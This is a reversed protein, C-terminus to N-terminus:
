PDRSNRLLHGSALRRPWLGCRRFFRRGFPREQGPEVSREGVPCQWFGQVQSHPAVFRGWFWLGLRKIAVM